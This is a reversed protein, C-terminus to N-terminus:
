LVAEMEVGGVSHTEVAECPLGNKGPEGIMVPNHDSLSKNLGKQLLAPFWSLFLPDCLFKDLRAWSANNRNNTWTFPMVHMPLDVVKAYDMFAKFNRM